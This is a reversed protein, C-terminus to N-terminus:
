SSSRNRKPALVRRTLGRIELFLNKLGAEREKRRRRREGATSEDADSVREEQLREQEAERYKKDFNLLLEELRKLNKHREGDSKKDFNAFEYEFVDTTIEGVFRRYMDSEFSKLAYALRGEKELRRVDVTIRTSRLYQLPRIKAARKTFEHDEGLKISEDFGGVRDFLRKTCFICFGPARPNTRLSTQIVLNAIRHLVRDLNLDSDPLYECTALDIFREDMEACANEIFDDPVTVDADFFFLYSGHAERAGANRGVGPMGGKVLRVGHSRCLEPTRDTSGADAVIVEFDRTTQRDLCALLKPLYKEENLTPVVVSAKV